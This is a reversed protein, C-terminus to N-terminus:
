LRLDRKDGKKRAQKMTMMKGGTRYAELPDKPKSSNSLWHKM